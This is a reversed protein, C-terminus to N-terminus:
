FRHNLLLSDHCKLYTERFYIDIGMQTMGNVAIIYGPEGLADQVIHQGAGQGQAATIM